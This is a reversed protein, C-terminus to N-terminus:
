DNNLNLTTILEGLQSYRESLTQKPHQITRVIIDAIDAKEGDEPKWSKELFTTYIAIQGYRIKEVKERWQKEGDKDPWLYIRRGEEILPELLTPKFSQLGGCAM